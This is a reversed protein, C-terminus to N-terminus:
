RTRKLYDRFSTTRYHGEGIYKLVKVFDDVPVFGPLNGVRMGQSDLFWSVPVGRISYERSLKSNRDADIRVSLFHEDLIDIVKSDALTEREMKRCYRCQDTYFYIYIAKDRAKARSLASEYSRWEISRSSGSNLHHPVLISLSSLSILTLSIWIGRKMQNQQRRKKESLLYVKFGGKKFLPHLPAM